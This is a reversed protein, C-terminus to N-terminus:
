VTVLWSCIFFHQKVFSCVGLIVPFAKLFIIPHTTTRKRQLYGILWLRVWPGPLDPWGVVGSRWCCGTSLPTWELKRRSGAWEPLDRDTRCCGWFTLVPRGRRRHKRRQEMFVFLRSKKGSSLEGDLPTHQLCSPEWIRLACHCCAKWSTHSDAAARLLFHKLSSLSSSLM